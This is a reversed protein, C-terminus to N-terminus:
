SLRIASDVVILFLVTFPLVAAVVVGRVTVLTYVIAVLPVLLVVGEVVGRCVVFPVLEAINVVEHGVVFPVMADVVDVVDRGVVFPVLADVVRVM